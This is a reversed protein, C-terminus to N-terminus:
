PLSKIINTYVEREHIIKMTKPSSFFLLNDLIGKMLLLGGSCCNIQLEWISRSTCLMDPQRSTCTMTVIKIAENTENFKLFKNLTLIIDKLFKSGSFFKLMKSPAIRCARYSHPLPRTGARPVVVDLRLM